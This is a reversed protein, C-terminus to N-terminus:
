NTRKPNPQSPDPPLRDVEELREALERWTRALKLYSQKREPSNASDALKDCQNAHERCDQARSM